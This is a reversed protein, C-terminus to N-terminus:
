NNNAHQIVSHLVLDNEFYVTYGSYEWRSIPPEGVAPVEQAPEGFQQRVQAMNLGNRPTKITPASQIGDILLVDASAPGSATLALTLLLLVSRCYNM